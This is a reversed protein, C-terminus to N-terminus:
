SQLRLRFRWVAAFAGVTIFAALCAVHGLAPLPSLSELAFGRALETGHWLPSIWALPRVWGPLQTIPFFAGSFLTMPLIVFRFMSAFAAGESELSAAFAVVPAGIAVGCLVAVPLALVIWPSAAGGFLAIFVLYPVCVMAVRATIWLLQGIAIHAPQLPAAVMAHYTREWKFKGHVPYSAEGAGTQAAVMALLGPAIFQLYPVGGTAPGAEVLAGLGIGFAVLMLLPQLLTSVLSSRWNRRYWMLWHEVVVLASAVASPPELHSAAPRDATVAGPASM